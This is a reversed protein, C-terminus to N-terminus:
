DASKKIFETRNHIDLKTYISHVHTKVTSLSIFLRDAILRYTYGQLLLLAIENERKSLGAIQITKSIKEEQRDPHLALITALFANNGIILSLHSYLPPLVVLAVCVVAMGLLATTTDSVPFFSLGAILKGTLIGTTNACLGIGLTLAPNKSFTLLEGLMSWWFLENIGSAGFLLTSIILYNVVSRNLAVYLIFTLGYIAMTASLFYGRNFRKPLRNVSLVAIAYPIAWFADAVVGINSFAPHVVQTVLGTNIAIMFIFVCLEIFPQVYPVRECPAEETSTPAGLQFTFFLASALHLLCLGLALSASLFVTCLNACVTLLATLALVYSATAVRKGPPSYARFFFAWASLFFGSSFSILILPAIGSTFSPVFFSSTGAICVLCSIVMSTKASSPSKTFFIGCILGCCHVTGSILSWFSLETGRLALLTFLLRGEHPISVLGAMLLALSLISSLRNNIKAM